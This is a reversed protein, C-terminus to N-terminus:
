HEATLHGCILCNLADYMLCFYITPTSFIEHEAETGYYPWVQNDKRLIHLFAAPSCWNSETIAISQVMDSLTEPDVEEKGNDSNESTIYCGSDRPCDDLQSKDFGRHPSLSQLEKGGESKQQQEVAFFLFPFFFITLILIRPFLKLYCCLQDQLIASLSSTIYAHSLWYREDILFLFM